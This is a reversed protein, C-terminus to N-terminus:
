NLLTPISDLVSEIIESGSRSKLETLSPDDNEMEIRNQFKLARDKFAQWTSPYYQLFLLLTMIKEIGGSDRSASDDLNAAACQV